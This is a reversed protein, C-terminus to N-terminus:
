KTLEVLAKNLQSMNEPTYGSLNLMVVNSKDLLVTHPLGPFKFNEQIGGSTQVVTSPAGKLSKIFKVINEAPESQTHVAIFKVTKFRKEFMALEPMEKRCPKCGVWFFNIVKPAGTDNKLRYPTDDLLHGIINPSTFGIQPGSQSGATVEIPLILTLLVVLVIQKIFV